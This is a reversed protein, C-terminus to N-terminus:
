KNTPMSFDAGGRGPERPWRQTVAKLRTYFRIGERGYIHHDGFLSSRWGGFSHFAMPVPIPVNVGVMGVEIAATFARAASGSRTFIATGNAYAHGNILGIAADLDPVRVIGLVPGFIEERYIRMQPQVGDFLSGGLFFGERSSEVTGRGDVVLSAGESVGSAIYDCVKARHAATILPGMDADPDSYAGVRLGKIRPALKEILREATGEGVAVAVSIAMCREGASGYAAGMLANAADDLDADPMVVAHNKAGGLAQVRKGHKTGELYVHQAVPTSGVFSIASIQPHRLLADVVERDGHIVNFAGDPLGAEKLLHALVLSASPDRESPKLVFTNGCALAIPFMWLPVMAPFNFPTIGAVVGLPQRLSFADVGTGVSENHEGKLLEAIGCAFEVVELGRAVEGRADALTKGHQRSIADAVVDGAQDLLERFRFMVRSRRSLSTAAWAPFAAKAAQVCAEFEAPSAFPVQATVRGTSPDFIDGSRSPAGHVAKGGIWHPVTITAASPNPSASM